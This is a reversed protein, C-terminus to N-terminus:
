FTYIKNNKQIILILVLLIAIVIISIIIIIMYKTYDVSVNTSDDRIVMTFTSIYTRPILLLDQATASTTLIIM